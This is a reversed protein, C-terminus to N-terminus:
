GQNDVLGLREYQEAPADNERMLRVLHERMRREAEPDEISNLQDPDKELDFLATGIDGSYRWRRAPPIKLLKCGKTFSFGESLELEKLEDHSFFCSMHTPMLTYNYLPKNDEGAWGRMYVYRGDTVNVHMGHVGFLGAERVPRDSAVTERLPVGQMDPTLDIGFYELLTPALDITQVLSSRREGAAASRPDWIFLPTHSVENYCPMVCKGLWEREGILFGHDTNVILMTDKWLDLEDMLDLVKGLHADCMSVLAAYERRLQEVQEPTEDQVKRYPPWDWHPGRSRHPYLARYTEPAYYPEHPDFTEIQLFWNDEARNRRMFDLGMRFTGAQPWQAEKQIFGRNVWDQRWSNDSRAAVCEPIEPDKVQGIWPDGEQGRSFQYSSYRNHYTAGGDQWYHYHDTVLHTYVGNKGLIEPMADDYPELPSWSRHLFNYRGTLIERRAPM